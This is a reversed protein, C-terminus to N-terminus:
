CLACIDKRVSRCVCQFWKNGTYCQIRTVVRGKSCATRGCQMNQEPRRLTGRAMIGKGTPRGMSLPPGSYFLAPNSSM